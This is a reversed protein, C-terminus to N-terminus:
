YAVLNEYRNSLLIKFSSTGSVHHVLHEAKCFLLHLSHNVSNYYIAGLLVRGKVLFCLWVLGLNWVLALSASLVRSFVFCTDWAM